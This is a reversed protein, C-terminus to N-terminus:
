WDFSISIGWPFSVGISYGKAKLGSQATAVPTTLLSVVRQLKAVAKKGWGAVSRPWPSAPAYFGGVAYSALSAWSQCTARLDEADDGDTVTDLAAALGAAIEDLLLELSEERGGRIDAVRNAVEARFDLSPEDVSQEEGAWTPRWAMM